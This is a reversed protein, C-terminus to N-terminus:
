FYITTGIPLRYDPAKSRPVSHQIFWAESLTYAQEWRASSGMKWAAIRRLTNHASDSRVSRPSSGKAKATTSVPGTTYPASGTPGALGTIEFDISYGMSRGRASQDRDFESHSVQVRQAHTMVEPVYLIKGGPAVRRVVERLAQMLVPASDGPFSGSMTLSENGTSVVDVVVANGGIFSHTGLVPDITHTFGQLGLPWQFAADGEIALWPRLFDVGPRALYTADDDKGGTKAFPDFPAATTLLRAGYATFGQDLTSAM